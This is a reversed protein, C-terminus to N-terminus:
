GGRRSSEVPSSPVLLDTLRLSEAPSRVEALVRSSVRLYRATTRLSAHGLLRQIVPLSVGEELLHSAFAARLTHYRAEPRRIGARAVADRFAASISDSRMPEDTSTRKPFLYPGPPRCCRWYARLGDLLIPPLLAERDRNGKGGRVLLLRRDGDIDGLRLHVVESARLGASYGALFAVRHKLLRTAGFIAEIEPRSLITPLRSSQKPWPIGAVVEPKDLTVGYAFRLAALYVAQTSASVRRDRVLWTLFALVEARGLEAASRGHWEEFRAICGLYNVSTNASLRRLLLDQELRDHLENM